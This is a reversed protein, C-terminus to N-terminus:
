LMKLIEEKPQYGICSAVKQGNEFLLVTPIGVIRLSRSLEKNEDVNLMAVIIDDREKAIEEIVPGIRLCHSCRPAWLDVLVRKESQNILTDFNDQNIHILAM